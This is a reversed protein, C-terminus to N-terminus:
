MTMTTKSNRSRTILLVVSRPQVTCTSGEVVPARFWDCIDDPSDLFTDICKRWPEFVDGGPSIEFSLAEWYANVMFHMLFQKELVPVTLSVVHSENGWDPSNLKVGHWSVPQYHLLENLTADLREIPLERNRRVMILLKAFRHIDAHKAVLDWNLWSIENDQCFANNNGGQSRRVEDGMLLMPTGISLLTLTLFNKVQRNRLREVEPDDTPGEVGCNWSLNDNSGDNNGQNNGENHKENYSVLDNLTFGDHCTVFNISQEPEREEHGYM